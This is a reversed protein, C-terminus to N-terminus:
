RVTTPATPQSFLSNRSRTHLHQQARLHAAACHVKVGQPSFDLQCSAEVRLAKDLHADLM